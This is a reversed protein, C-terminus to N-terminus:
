KEPTFYRMVVYPSGLGSFLFQTYQVGLYPCSSGGCLTSLIRTKQLHICSSQTLIYFSTRLVWLATRLLYFRKNDSRHAILLKFRHRWTKKERYSFSLSLECVAHPMKSTSWTYSEGRCLHQPGSAM